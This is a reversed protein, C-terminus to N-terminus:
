RPCTCSPTRTTRLTCIMAELCMVCSHLSLPHSPPLSLLLSRSYLGLLNMSVLRDCTAGGLKVSHFPRELHNLPLVTFHEKLAWTDPFSSMVSGNIIYYPAPSENDRASIVKFCHVGHDAVTYRGFEGILHPIPVGHKECETKITRLMTEVYRQYDVTEGCTLPSPM